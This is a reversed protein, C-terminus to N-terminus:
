AVSAAACTAGTGACIHSPRAWRGTGACIHPLGGEGTRHGVLAELGGDGAGCPYSRLVRQCSARYQPHTRRCNTCAPPHEFKIPACHLRTSWNAIQATSSRGDKTLSRGQASEVCVATSPQPPRAGRAAPRREAKPKLRTRVPTRNTTPSLLPGVRLKALADAIALHARSSGATARVSACARIFARACARVCATRVSHTRACVRVRAHVCALM